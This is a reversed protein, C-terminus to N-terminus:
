QRKYYDHDASINSPWQVQLMLKTRLLTTSCEPILFKRQRVKQGLSENNGALGGGQLHSKDHLLGWLYPHCRRQPQSATETFLSIKRGNTPLVTLNSQFIPNICCQGLISWSIIYWIYHCPTKKKKGLKDRKYWTYIQTFHLFPLLLCSKQKGICSGAKVPVCFMWKPKFFTVSKSATDNKYMSITNQSKTHRTKIPVDLHRM